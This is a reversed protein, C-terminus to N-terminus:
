KLLLLKVTRKYNVSKQNVGAARMRCFYFGSSVARGHDDRGDWKATHESAKQKGDVLTRVKRGLVDYVTMKVTSLVPLDYSITTEANFPNPYNQALKFEPINCNQFCNVGSNLQISIRFSDATSYNQDADILLRFLTEHPVTEANIRVQFPQSVNDAVAHRDIGGYEARDQLIEVDPDESTLTASVGSGDLSTNLLAVVLQVTEGAEVIGNNNGESDDIEFGSIRIFPADLHYFFRAGMDAPTGDGDLPSVPDGSDICPSLDTLDYQENAFLPDSDLNGTGPFGYEVTSYTLHIKGGGIEAVPGGSTQSNGWIINNNGFAEGRWVFIAGGKGGYTGGGLSSNEVITNNDLRIPDDSSGIIWIGAGGYAQGGSNFSFVNRVAYCGSYNIDLGAGYDAYNATIINNEIRPNGGYCLIGGAQAGDVGTKDTVSNDRIINDKIVPSARFCFVGGGGRWIYDPLDPDVWKTGQGFSLTFGQLVASSDEGHCFIVCSATDSSSSSTANCIATNEIKSLDGELFYESTVVVGRGRFRVNEFYMGPAVLVTDGAAARDIGAQITPANDPVEIIKGEVPGHCLSCWIILVGTFNLLRLM